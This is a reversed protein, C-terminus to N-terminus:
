YGIPQHTKLHGILFLQPMYEVKYIDRWTDGVVHIENDKVYVKYPMNKIAEPTYEALLNEHVMNEAQQQTINM